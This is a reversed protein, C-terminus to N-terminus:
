EPSASPPPFAAKHTFLRKDLIAFVLRAKELIKERGQKDRHTYRRAVDESVKHGMFYEEADGLEEANTMTKWFHRGSYFTIHEAALRAPDYGLLAGLDHYAKTWVGSQIKKGNSFLYDDPQKRHKKIYHALKRRVFPHLPVIREGHRTKSKPINVFATDNIFVIDQTQIRGIECNRMNTSYILLNLLYSLEDNWKKNFVGRIAALDYCGRMTVDTDSIKLAALSKCPNTECYGEIILHNFMQSIYSLGHNITQPKMGSRLLHNQFRALFPTTIATLATTETEKLYPLLKKVMFNHYVRRTNESLRRGRRTDIELFPSDKAYYTKVINNLEASVQRRFQQEEREVLFKERNIVAFQKALELNNTHTSRRTPVLKGRVIYRVYYTFGLKKSKVKSLSYGKPRRPPTIQTNIRELETLADPFQGQYTEKLQKVIPKDGAAPAGRALWASISQPSFMLVTKGSNCTVSTFPIRGASALTEVTYENINLIHAIEDLTLFQDDNQMIQKRCRLPFVQASKTIFLLFMPSVQTGKPVFLLFM